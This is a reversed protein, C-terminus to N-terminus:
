NNYIRHSSSASRSYFSSTGPRGGNALMKQQFYLVCEHFGNRKAVDVPSDGMDNVARFDAGKSVLFQVMALDKSKGCVFHLPSEGFSNRINVDIGKNLLFQVTERKGTRVAAHLLSNEGPQNDKADFRCGHAERDGLSEINFSEIDKVIDLFSGIKSLSHTELQSPPFPQNCAKCKTFRRLCQVKHLDLNEPPVEQNCNDCVSSKSFSPEPQPSLSFLKVPSPKYSNLRKQLSQNEERLSEIMARAEMLQVKLDSNEHELDQIQKKLAGTKTLSSM